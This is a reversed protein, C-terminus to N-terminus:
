RESAIRGGVEIALCLRTHEDVGVLCKLAEGSAWRDHVFDYAWLEHPRTAEPRRRGEAGAIAGYQYAVGM